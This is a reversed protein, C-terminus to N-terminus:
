IAVEKGNINYIKYKNINRKAIEKASKLTYFKKAEKRELSYHFWNHKKDLINSLYLENDNITRSVIYNM